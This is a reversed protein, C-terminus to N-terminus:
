RASLEQHIKKAEDRTKSDLSSGYALALDIQLLAKDRMGEARLMLAYNYHGLAYEPNYRIATEFHLRAEAARNTQFLFIAFNSHAASYDPQLRIAERYSAEALDPHNQRLYVSALAYHTEPIEPDFELSKKLAAAAQEMIGARVYLQGLRSWAEGKDGPNVLRFTAIAGQSDGSDVQAEALGLLAEVSGPQLAIADKYIAISAPRKDARMADALEIYFEAVKPKIRKTVEDFQPIGTVFNNRAQVQALALYLENAPTSAFSNRDYPVVEGHYVMDPGHPETRPALLDGASQRRQIRHDTMIVHVVDDTRRKPMHCSVCDNASAHVQASPTVHCDRCIANYNNTERGQFHPDHCTTCTLRGASKLFCASM